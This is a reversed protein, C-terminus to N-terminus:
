VDQIALSEPLRTERSYHLPLDERGTTGLVENQPLAKNFRHQM